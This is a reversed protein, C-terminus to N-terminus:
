LQFSRVVSLYVSWPYGFSHGIKGEDGKLRLESYGFTGGFFASTRKAIISGAAVKAYLTFRDMPFKITMKTKTKETESTVDITYRGYDMSAGLGLRALIDRESVDRFNAVVESGVRAAFFSAHFDSSTKTESHWLYHTGLYPIVRLTHKKGLKAVAWENTIVLSPGSYSPIEADKPARGSRPAIAEWGLEAGIVLFSAKKRPPKAVGKSSRKKAPAPKKRVAPARRSPKAPETPTVDGTGTAPDAAPDLPTETSPTEEPPVGEAPAGEPPSGETSVGERPLGEESGDGEMPASGEAPADPPADSPATNGQEPTGADAPPTPDPGEADVPFEAAGDDPGDAAQALARGPLASAALVSLTVALAKM